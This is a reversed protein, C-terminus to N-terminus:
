RARRERARAIVDGASELDGLPAADAAEVARLYDKNSQLQATARVSRAFRILPDVHGTRDHHVVASSMQRLLEWWQEEPLTGLLDLVEGALEADRDTFDADLPSAASTAGM